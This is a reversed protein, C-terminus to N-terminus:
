KTTKRTVLQCDSLVVRYRSNRFGEVTGKAVIEDGPEFPEPPDENRYNFHCEAPVFTETSKRFTVVTETSTRYVTDIGGAVSINKGGFQEMADSENREFAASLRTAAISERSNALAASQDDTHGCSSVFVSAAFVGAIIVFKETAIQMLDLSKLRDVRSSISPTDAKRQLFISSFFLFIASFKGHFFRIGERIYRLPLEGIGSIRM